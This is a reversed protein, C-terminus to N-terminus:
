YLNEYVTWTQRATENWDFQQVHTYGATRMANRTAEDNLVSELKSVWEERDFSDIVIAAEGLVEKLSGGGSSVVPTGCTMAELPPFGFGEYRSPFVFCEAGAMLGSLHEEPVYDLYRIRKAVPSQQMRELIPECKWGKMGAVVLDGDFASLHEFVEVLFEINKRPELTGVFLIYPRTLNLTERTKGIWDESPRQMHGSLGLWIPFIKERSIQLLEHIEDGSFHSDTIIADAKRATHQIQATLYKLNDAETTEPMRLFSVDHITVVSKGRSLPPRVFNPFHYVDASGAFWNFPPFQVAKWAGQVLRGPIWQVAKQTAGHVPFPVGQRKFDFYFLSLDKAEPLQALHEVLVKTYRGVGARQAIAAQIDICVKM